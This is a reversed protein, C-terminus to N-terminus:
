SRWTKLPQFPFGTTEGSTAWKAKWAAKKMLKRQIASSVPLAGIRDSHLLVRATEERRYGRVVKKVAAKLNDYRLTRFVGGFYAFAHEHAELFAQQTARRYARHFAAVSGMSRMTFVQLKTREGELDAWAEYFDVQAEQGLVYAQPIFVTGSAGLQRKKERVYERVTSEGVQHEPLEARIWEWIRRATHRQKRPSRRDAELIADVFSMVPSLVARVRDPRKREPPNADTLAQRVM